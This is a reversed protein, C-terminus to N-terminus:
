PKSSLDDQKKAHKLLEITEFATYFLYVAMFTIGFQKLTEKAILGYVLLIGLSLFLKITLSLMFNNVFSQPRSTKQTSLLHTLLTIVYFFVHSIYISLPYDIQQLAYQAILVNVVLLSIFLTTLSLVYSKM